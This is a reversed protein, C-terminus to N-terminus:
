VGDAYVNFETGPAGYQMYYKGNHKTLWPGEIYRGGVGWLLSLIPGGLIILGFFMTVWESLNSLDMWKPFGYFRVGVETGCFLLTLIWSALVPYYSKIKM